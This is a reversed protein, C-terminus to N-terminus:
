EDRPQSYYLLLLICSAGSTTRGRALARAVEPVPCPSWARSRSPPRPAAGRGSGRGQSGFSSVLAGVLPPPIAYIHQDASWALMMSARDSCPRQSLDCSVTSLCCWKRRGVGSIRFGSGLGCRARGCCLRAGWGVLGLVRCGVGQM